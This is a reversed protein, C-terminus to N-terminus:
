LCISVSVVRISWSCLSFLRSPSASLREPSCRILQLLSEAVLRRLGFGGVDAVEGGDIVAIAVGPCNYEKLRDTIPWSVEHGAVPNVPLVHAVADELRNVTGVM